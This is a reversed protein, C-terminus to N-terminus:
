ATVKAVIEMRFDHHNVSHPLHATAGPDCVSISESAENPPSKMRHHIVADAIEDGSNPPPQPLMLKSVFFAV